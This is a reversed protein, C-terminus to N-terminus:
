RPIDRQWATVFLTAGIAAAAQQGAPILGGFALGAPSGAGLLLGGGLLLLALTVAVVLTMALAVVGQVVIWRARSVPLSLSLVATGERPESMVGGVTLLAALYPIFGGADWTWAQRLYAGYDAALRAVAAGEEPSMEWDLPGGLRGTIRAFVLVVGVAYIAGIGLAIGFRARVDFWTKWVIM